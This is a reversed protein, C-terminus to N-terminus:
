LTDWILEDSHLIKPIVTGMDYENHAIIVAGRDIYSRRDNRGIVKLELERFREGCCLSKFRCGPELIKKLKIDTYEFSYEGEEYFMDPELRYRTGSIVSEEIFCMEDMWMWDVYSHLDELTCNEDIELIGWYRPHKKAAALIDFCAGTEGMYELLRERCKVREECEQM